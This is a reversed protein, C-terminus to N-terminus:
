KVIQDKNSIISSLITLILKWIGYWLFVMAGVAEVNEEIGNDHIVYFWDDDLKYFVFKDINIKNTAGTSQMNYDKISNTM